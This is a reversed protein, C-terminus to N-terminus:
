GGECRCGMWAAYNEAAEAVAGRGHLTTKPSRAGVDADDDEGAEAAGFQAV